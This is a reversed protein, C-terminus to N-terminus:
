IHILSLNYNPYGCGNLCDQGLWGQDCHSPYMYAGGKTCSDPQSETRYKDYSYHENVANCVRHLYNDNGYATEIYQVQKTGTAGLTELCSRLLTAPM